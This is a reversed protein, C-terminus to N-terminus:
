RIPLSGAVSTGAGVASRVHVAGDLAALRDAIGQLGTGYSRESADFGVGDDRVEFRLRGDQQELRVEVRSANAY